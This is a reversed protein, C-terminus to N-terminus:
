GTSDALVAPLYVKRTGRAVIAISHADTVRGGCNEATVSLTKSGTVAWTYTVVAGWQDLYTNPAWTYTIPLSAAPPTIAATFAELTNTVGTTGGVIEVGTVPECASSGGVVYVNLQNKEYSTPTDGDYADSLDMYPYDGSWHAAAANQNVRTARRFTGRRAASVNQNSYLPCLVYESAYWDVAFPDTSVMLVDQRTGHGDYNHDAVWIADVINLDPARILAMQRGLLGYDRNSGGTFGWFFDHMEEFGGYRGDHGAITIFGILNKWAITAGAWGHQKLVPLNIFTLRDPEYSSGNWVGYRMSVHPGGTHTRFKPYSLENTGTGDTDELLIYTDNMSGTAYEGSPYGVGAVDGGSTLDDNLEDWRYLYVPYGLDTHFTDVVDQYSQNQDQSNAPTITWDSIVGQTNEAVVIEGTFGSPDPHQLIRWILGKLVDTNTCLRRNDGNEAWQNNIKIVVVDTAGVIGTPHSATRYFHDGQTEMENILGDVGDDHLAFGENSCDGTDPLTGDALSCQPVPVNAVVFVNSVASVSTWGPLDLAALAPPIPANSGVLAASLALAVGFVVAAGLTIRRKLRHYVYTAGSLSAV